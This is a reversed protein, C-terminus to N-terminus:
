AIIKSNIMKLWSSIRTLAKQNNEALKRVLKVQQTVKYMIIKVGSNNGDHLFTKCVTRTYNFGLFIYMCTEIRVQNVMYCSFLYTVKLLTILIFIRQVSQFWFKFWQLRSCAHIYKNAEYYRYWIRLGDFKIHINMTLYNIM